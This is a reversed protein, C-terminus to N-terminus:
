LGGRDKTYRYFIIIAFIFTLISQGVMLYAINELMPALAQISDTHETAASIAQKGDSANSIVVGATTATTTVASVASITTVSKTPPKKPANRNSIRTFAKTLKWAYRNSKYNPGNYIRAFTHWDRSRLANQLDRYEIYRCFAELQGSPTVMSEFFSEPSEYNLAEWNEGLVQFAGWSCGQIACARAQEIPLQSIVTFKHFQKSKKGYGGHPYPKLGIWNKVQPYKATISAPNHGERQFAQGTKHREQLATPNGNKDYAEGASEVILAAEIEHTTPLGFRAAAAELEGAPLLEIFNPM